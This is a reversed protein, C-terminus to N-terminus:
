SNAITLTAYLYICDHNSLMTSTGKLLSSLATEIDPDCTDVYCWGFLENFGSSLFRLTFDILQFLKQM